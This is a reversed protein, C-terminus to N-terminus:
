TIYKCFIVNTRNISQGPPAYVSSVYAVVATIVIWILWFSLSSHGKLFYPWVKKIQQIVNCSSFNKLDAIPFFIVLAM